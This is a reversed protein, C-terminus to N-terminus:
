KLKTLFHMVDGDKVVYAKGEKRSYKALKDCYGPNAILADAHLVEANIFGRSFDSHIKGGAELATEGRRIAWARVEDRGVTYFHAIELEEYGARIIREVESSGGAGAAVAQEHEVSYPILSSPFRGDMSVAAEIEARRHLTGALYDQRSLNLLYVMPKSTLLLYKNLVEAERAAWQENRVERGARLVAEVRQLVEWEERLLRDASKAAKKGFERAKRGVVELDKQVLEHRIIAIDRVPDMGGETHAVEEGPFARVVHYLGDVQTVHSLFENGLGFGESAGKVLGAIDVIRLVPGTVKEPRYLRVLAEFRADGVAIFATNPEITCFPMNEAPVNLKSLVNFTSSKGINAMGLLGMKLSTGPRGLRVRKGAGVGGGAGAGAFWRVIRKALM